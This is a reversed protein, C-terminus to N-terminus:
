WLSGGDWDMQGGGGDVYSTSSGPLEGGSLGGAGGGRMGEFGINGSGSQDAGSDRGGGAYAGGAAVAAAADDREVFIDVSISAEYFDELEETVNRLKEKVADAGEFGVIHRAPPNEHGGIAVLATVTENVLADLSSEPLQPYRSVIRSGGRGKDNGYGTSGPTDTHQQQQQTQAPTAITSRSAPTSAPPSTSSSPSYTLVPSDPSGTSRAAQGPALSGGPVATEPDLSLVRALMSRVSPVSLHSDAAAGGASGETGDQQLAPAFVIRNTLMSIEKHPQVITVRVNFPAVEYALSDCFGEIAWTAATHISMEPTGIHGGISTLVVIHGNHQARLRPLVAKILNVQSFFITEFQDQILM